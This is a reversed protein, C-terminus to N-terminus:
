MPPRDIEMYRRENLWDQVIDVTYAHTVDEIYVVVEEKELKLKHKMLCDPSLGETVGSHPTVPPKRQGQPLMSPQGCQYGCAM